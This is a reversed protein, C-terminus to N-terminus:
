ETSSKRVLLANKTGLEKRSNQVSVQDPTQTNPAASTNSRALNSAKKGRPLGDSNKPVRWRSKCIGRLVRPRLPHSPVARASWAPSSQASNQSRLQSRECISRRPGPAALHHRFRFRGFNGHITTTHGRVRRLGRRPWDATISDAGCSLFKLVVCQRSAATQTQRCGLCWSGFSFWIERVEGPMWFASRLYPNSPIAPTAAICRAVSSAAFTRLMESSRDIREAHQESPSGSFPQQQCM